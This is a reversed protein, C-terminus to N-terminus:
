RPLAYFNIDVDSRPVVLGLAILTRLLTPAADRRIALSWALEADRIPVANRPFAALLAAARFLALSARREEAPQTSGARHARASDDALKGTLPQLSGFFIVANLLPKSLGEDNLHTEALRILPARDPQILGLLHAPTPSTSLQDQSTHHRVESM